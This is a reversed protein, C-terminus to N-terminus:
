KIKILDDLLLTLTKYEEDEKKGDLELNLLRAKMIKIIEDKNKHLDKLREVYLIKTGWVSLASFCGTFILLSSFFLIMSGIM